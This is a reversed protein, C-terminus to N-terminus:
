SDHYFSCDSGFADLLLRSMFLPLRCQISFMRVEHGLAFWGPSFNISGPVFRPVEPTRFYTPDSRWNIKKNKSRQAKAQAQSQSDGMLNSIRETAINAEEQFEYSLKDAGAFRFKGGARLLCHRTLAM